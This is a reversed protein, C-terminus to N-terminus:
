VAVKERTAALENAAVSEGLNEHVQELLKRLTEVEKPSMGRVSRDRVRNACEVIRGWVPVAKDTPRVYKRRRDDPCPDRCILGDRQMRDLVKVLTPPEVNMREALEVQALQGDLALWGLVQCQRYTMGERALEENMAREFRHAAIHVWYGVDSRFDNELLAM